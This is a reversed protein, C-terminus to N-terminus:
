YRSKYPSQIKVVKFIWRYYSIEQTRQDRHTIVNFYHKCWQNRPNLEHGCFPCIIKYEKTKRYVIVRYNIRQYKRKPKPIKIKVM